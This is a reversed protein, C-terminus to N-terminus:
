LSRQLQQITQLVTNVGLNELRSFNLHLNKIKQDARLIQDLREGLVLYHGQELFSMQRECLNLWHKWSAESSVCMWFLPSGTRPMNLLNLFQDFTQEPCYRQYLVLNLVERQQALCQQMMFQRGGEGRWFAIKELDERQKFIPLHLMGESTEIEPVNAQIGHDALASATTKGVAIWTVHALQALQIGSQILYKLGVEVATPSVVVIVQVTLLQHFLQQLQQSFEVPKLALLPLEVVEFGALSLHQTLASAREKPRTNIFLM